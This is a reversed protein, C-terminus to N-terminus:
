ITTNDTPQEVPAATAPAEPADPALQTIPMGTNPDLKAEPQPNIPQGTAPDFKPTPQPNIPQGTTPDFKANVPTVTAPFESLKKEFLKETLDGVVPLKPDAENKMAKVIGLIMLVFCLISYISSLFSIDFGVTAYMIGGLIGFVINVAVQSVSIVISQCAHFATKRDNDKFAFLVILGGIWGFFYSVFGKGKYDM